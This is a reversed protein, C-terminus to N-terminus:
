DYNMVGNFVGTVIKGDAECRTKAITKTLKISGVFRTEIPRSDTPQAPSRPLVSTDVAREQICAPAARHDRPQQEFDLHTQLTMNKGGSVDICLNKHLGAGTRSKEVRWHSPRLVAV